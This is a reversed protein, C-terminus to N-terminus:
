KCRTLNNRRFVCAERPIRHFIRELLPNTQYFQFLACRSRSRLSVARTPLHFRHIRAQLARGIFQQSLVFTFSLSVFYILRLLHLHFLDLTLVLMHIDHTGGCELMTLM